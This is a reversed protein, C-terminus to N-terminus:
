CNFLADAERKAAPYLLAALTAAVGSLAILLM